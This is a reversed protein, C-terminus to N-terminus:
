VFRERLATTVMYKVISDLEEHSIRNNLEQRLTNVENQLEEISSVVENAVVRISYIEDLRIEIDAKPAEAAAILVDIASNETAEGSIENQLEETTPEEPATETPAEIEAAVPEAETALENEPQETDETEIGNKATEAEANDTVEAEALPEATENSSFFTALKELTEQSATKLKEVIQDLM